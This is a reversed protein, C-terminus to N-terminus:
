HVHGTHNDYVIIHELKFQQAIESVAASFLYVLFLAFIVLLLSFKFWDSRKFFVQHYTTRKSYPNYGRSELALAIQDARKFISVFLPILLSVLAKIKIRLNGNYFDLGRSAQADMIANAEDVLTAVLRLSLSIIMAFIHVPFRFFRLPRMLWTLAYTLDVTRTTTILLLTCMIVLTVRLTYYFAFIFVTKRLWQWSRTQNVIYNWKGLENKQSALTTIINFVILFFFMLLAIKLLFFFIRWPIKALILLLILGGLLTFYVMFSKKIFLIVLFLIFVLFKFRPDFAHVSSDRPIYRGFIFSNM